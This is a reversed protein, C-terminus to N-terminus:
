SQRKGDTSDGESEEALSDFQEKDALLFGGVFEKETMLEEAVERTVGITVQGRGGYINVAIINSLPALRIDMEGDCMRQLIEFTKM